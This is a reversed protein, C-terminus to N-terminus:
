LTKLADKSIVTPSHHPNFVNADAHLTDKKEQLLIRPLSLEM